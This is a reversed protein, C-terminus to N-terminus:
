GESEKGELEPFKDIIIKKEAKTLKKGINIEDIIGDNHLSIAIPLSEIGSINEILWSRIDDANQIQKKNKFKTHNM